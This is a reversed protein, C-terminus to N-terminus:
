EVSLTPPRPVDKRLQAYDFYHREAMGSSRHGLFKAGQGPNEIEVHTAASRRFWKSSGAIRCEDVLKRMIRMAWRKNCAWGLIRGDPSSALMAQVARLCQDTLIATIPNGTKNQGYRLVNGDIHRDQLKWLDSYRAGTEYALLTWCRLLLGRDAGSRLRKGHWKATQNVVTCCQSITWARTPEKLVKVKVVGRPWRDILREEYAWRWLILLMARENRVTVPKVSALRSRLYTNVNEIRQCNKAVRRLNKEYDAALVREDCYRCCIAPLDIM